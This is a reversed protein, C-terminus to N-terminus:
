FSFTPTRIVDIDRKPPPPTFGTVNYSQLMFAFFYKIQIPIQTFKEGAPSGIFIRTTNFSTKVSDLSKDVQRYHISTHILFYTSFDDLYPVVYIFFSLFM